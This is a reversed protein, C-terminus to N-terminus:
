RLGQGTRPIWAEWAPYGDNNEHNDHHRHDNILQCIQGCLLHGRLCSCRLHLYLVASRIYSKTWCFSKFMPRTQDPRTQDPRHCINFKLSYVLVSARFLWIEDYDAQYEEESLTCSPYEESLVLYKINFKSSWCRNRPNCEIRNTNWLSRAPRELRPLLLCVRAM